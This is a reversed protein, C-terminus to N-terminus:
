RCGRAAGLLVTALGILGLFFAHVLRHATPQGLVVAAAWAWPTLPAPAPTPATASPPAPARAAPVSPLTQM